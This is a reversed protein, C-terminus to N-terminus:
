KSIRFSNKGKWLVQSRLEGETKLPTRTVRDKTKHTHITSRKTDKPEKEKPRLITRLETIRNNGKNTLNFLKFIGFPCDYDTYQLPVSLV